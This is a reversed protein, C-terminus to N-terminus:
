INIFLSEYRSITDDIRFQTRIRKEAKSGLEKLKIDGKQIMKEWARSLALPDNVPVVIGTAGVIYASDGADTVVCPVSAAMAEAIANSFGEGYSSSSCALDSISYIGNIDNREGLLHINEKQGVAGMQEKLPTNNRDMGRGAFIFHVKSNKKLLIEAAKFFTKHDKMPDYRAVSTVVIANEPLGLEKLSVSNKTKWVRNKDCDIGNHLVVWNKNQYGMDKHFKKGAFSNVIICDSFRSLIAGAKITFDYVTGYAGFKMNSCRINWLIRINPFALKFFIGLLNAHYMWCQIIDIKYHRILKFLEIMGGPDPLGKKMGLAHIYVGNGAMSKGVPGINTMSVVINKFKTKDMGSVLRFLFIEAGGTDLTSILHLITKQAM